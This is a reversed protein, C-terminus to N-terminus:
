RTKGGQDLAKEIEAIPLFGPVLVGDAFILAPTGNVNLKSSLQMVQETPTECTGVPPVIQNQMLNDWAKIPDKSCLVGKVKEASGPFITMLFLHLTVNDLDKM